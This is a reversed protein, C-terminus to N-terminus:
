KKAAKELGPAVLKLQITQDKFSNFEPYDRFIWGKAVQKDGSLLEVLVAPNKAENSRSEITNDSIAYDPVLAEVRIKYGEKKLPAAEGVKLTLTDKSKTSSDAVEMKVEKWKAKVDDTLKVQKQSKLNAHSVQQDPGGQQGTQPHGEPMAQSGQQAADKPAEATKKEGCGTVGILIASAAVLLYKKSFGTMAM